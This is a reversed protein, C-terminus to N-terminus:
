LLEFFRRLRKANIGVDGKGMRSVSRADIRVGTSEPRLRIVIDDKFGFWFTADTAEILGAQKNAAVVEWGLTEVAALVRNFATDPSVDLIVPQLDPYAEQTLQVLLQRNMDRSVGYEVGNDADARLPLVAVFGPPNVTDTSIDHISPYPQDEPALYTQPVYWTLGAILAGTVSIGVLRATNPMNWKKGLVGLVVALVLAAEAIYICYPVLSRLMTFGTRYGWLDLRYGMPALIAILAVGTGIVLASLAAWFMWAHQPRDTNEM